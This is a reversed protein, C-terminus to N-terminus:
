WDFLRFKEGKAGKPLRGDEEPPVHDQFDGEENEHKGSVVVLKREDIPTGGSCWRVCSSFEGSDDVSASTLEERCQSAIIRIEALM